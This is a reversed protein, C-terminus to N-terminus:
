PTVEEVRPDQGRKKRAGALAQYHSVLWPAAAEARPLQQEVFAVDRNLERAICPIDQGHLHRAMVYAQVEAGSVPRDGHLALREQRKRVRQRQCAKCVYDVPRKRKKKKSMPYFESATKQERCGSCAFLQMGSVQSERAQRLMEPFDGPDLGRAPAGAGKGGVNGIKEVKDM